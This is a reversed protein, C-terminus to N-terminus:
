QEPDMRKNIDKYLEDIQAIVDAYPREEEEDSKNLADIATDYAEKLEMFGEPDDEPNTDVLKSRYADRIIDADDTPEIGLIAWAKEEKM